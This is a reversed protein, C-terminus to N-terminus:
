ALSCPKLLRISCKSFEFTSFALSFLYRGIMLDVTLISVRMLFWFSLHVWFAMMEIWDEKNKWLDKM